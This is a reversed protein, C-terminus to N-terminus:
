PILAHEVELEEDSSTPSFFRYSQPQAEPVFAADHSHNRPRHNFAEIDKYQPETTWLRSFKDHKDIALGPPLRPSAMASKISSEQRYRLLGPSPTSLRDRQDPTNGLTDCRKTSGRHGDTVYDTTSAFTVRSLRRGSDKGLISTTKLSAPVDWFSAADLAAGGLTKLIKPAQRLDSSGADSSTLYRDVEGLEDERKRKGQTSAPQDGERPIKTELAESRQVIKEMARKLSGAGRKLRPLSINRNPYLRALRAAEHSRVNHQRIYEEIDADKWRPNDPDLRIADPHPLGLEACRRVNTDVIIRKSTLPQLEYAFDRVKVPPFRSGAFASTTAPTVYSDTPRDDLINHMSTTTRLTGSAAPSGFHSPLPQKVSSKHGPGHIDAYTPEMNGRYRKAPRGSSLDVANKRKHFTPRSPRIGRLSMDDEGDIKSPTSGGRDRLPYQGRPPGVGLQGNLHPDALRGDRTPPSPPTAHTNMPENVGMSQVLALFRNVGEELDKVTQGPMVFRRPCFSLPEQKRAYQYDIWELESGELAAESGQQKRQPLRTPRISEIEVQERADRHNLMFKVKRMELKLEAPTAGALHVVENAVLARGKHLNILTIKADGGILINKLEVNGHLVGCAHLKKFAEVCREKLADPMDPSAEIWFVHHPPGMSLTVKGPSAYVGIVEPVM